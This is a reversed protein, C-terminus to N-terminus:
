PEIIMMINHFNVFFLRIIILRIDRHELDLTPNLYLIHTIEAYRTTDLIRSLTSTALAHSRVTSARSNIDLYHPTEHRAYLRSNEMSISVHPLQERTKCHAIGM